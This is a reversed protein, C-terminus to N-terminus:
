GKWQHLWIWNRLLILLTGRNRRLKDHAWDHNHPLLVHLIHETWVKLDRRGILVATYLSRELMNLIYVYLCAMLWIFKCLQRRRDGSARACHRFSETVIGTLTRLLPVAQQLSIRLGFYNSTCLCSIIFWLLPLLTLLLTHPRWTYSIM